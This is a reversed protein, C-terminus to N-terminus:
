RKLPLNGKRLAQRCASSACPWTVAMWRERCSVAKAPRQLPGCRRSARQKKGVRSWRKLKATIFVTVPKAATQLHLLLTEGSALDARSSVGYTKVRDWDAEKERGQFWSPADLDVGLNVKAEVAAKGNTVAQALLALSPGVFKMEGSLRGDLLVKPLVEREPESGIAAADCAEERARVYLEILVHAFPNWWLFARVLNQLWVAVTDHCRLHESEHGLLWRWQRLTLSAFASAPVAIVPFLWAAACPTGEHDFVRLRKPDFTPPLRGIEEATPARLNWAWCQVRASQVLLRLLLFATVLWSLRRLWLVTENVDWSRVPPAVIVPAAPAVTVRWDQEFTERLPTWVPVPVTKQPLFLDRLSIDFPSYLCMLLALNALICRRLADRIVFRVLLWGSAGILLSHVLFNVFAVNEANM